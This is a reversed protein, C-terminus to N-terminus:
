ALVPTLLRIYADISSPKTVLKINGLREATQIDEATLCGSTVVARLEPRVERLKHLLDFGSMGPMSIDVVVVGFDSPRKRFDELAAIPEFYGVVDWGMRTLVRTALLVIAREDDVYLVRTALVPEDM